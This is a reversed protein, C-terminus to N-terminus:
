IVQIETSYDVLCHHKPPKFIRLLDRLLLESLNWVSSYGMGMELMENQLKCRFEVGFNLERSLSQLCWMGLGM